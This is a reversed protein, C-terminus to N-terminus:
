LKQEELSNILKSTTAFIDQMAGDVQPTYRAFEAESLVHM